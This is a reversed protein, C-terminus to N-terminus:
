NCRRFKLHYIIGAKVDASDVTSMAQEGQRNSQVFMGTSVRLNTDAGCESWVLSRAELDSTLLYDQTLPGYFTKVQSLGRTGAMFYNVNFRAYAGPPLASFGRYDIQFVSVSYGEPIRVPIAIDCNKREFTRNIASGAEVVYQDFLISLSKSDPSLTVSASGMPCGSGGYGPEGLQIDEARAETSAVGVLAALLSMVIKKM